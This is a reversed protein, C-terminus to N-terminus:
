APPPAVGQTPARQQELIEDVDDIADVGLFGAMQRARARLTAPLDEAKAMQAFLEGARDRDGNELHAMAVLEGASGFLPSDPRAFSGLRSIVAEPQMDDYQAAVSRVAALDRLAQPADADDAVADFLEVAAASDDNQLAVGAQMLRAATAAGIDGEEVLPDLLSSATDLNGAEINDQASILVESQREREAEQQGSWWLYGGLGALGLVLAAILPKGFRAAFEGMQDQRVADDVERLLVEEERAKREQPTQKGPTLAM